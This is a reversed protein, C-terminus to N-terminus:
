ELVEDIYYSDNLDELKLSTGNEFYIENHIIQKIKKDYICDVQVFNDKFTKYNLPLYSDHSNVLVIMADSSIFSFIFYEGSTKNQIVKVNTLIINLIISKLFNLVVKM